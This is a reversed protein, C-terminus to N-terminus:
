RDLCLAIVRDAKHKEKLIHSCKEEVVAQLRSNQQDMQVLLMDM